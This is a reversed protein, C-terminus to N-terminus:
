SMPFDQKSGIDPIYSLPPFPLYIVIIPFNNNSTCHAYTSYCMLACHLLITLLLCKRLPCRRLWKLAKLGASDTNQFNLGKLKYLYHQCKAIGPEEERRSTLGRILQLQPLPFEYCYCKAFIDSTFASNWLWLFEIFIVFTVDPWM